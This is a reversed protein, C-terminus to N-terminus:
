GIEALHEGNRGIVYITYQHDWSRLHDGAAAHLRALANDYQRKTCYLRGNKEEAKIITKGNDKTYNSFVEIAKRMQREPKGVLGCTAISPQRVAVM